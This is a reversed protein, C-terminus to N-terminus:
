DLNPYVSVNYRANYVLIDGKVDPDFLFDVPETAHLPKPSKMTAFQYFLLDTKLLFTEDSPFFKNLQLILEEYSRVCNIQVPAAGKTFTFTKSILVQDGPVQAAPLQDGPVQAAPFQDGPVQAAPLAGPSNLVLFQASADSIYNKATDTNPIVSLQEDADSVISHQDGADLPISRQEDADSFVSRQVSVDPTVSIRAEADSISCGDPMLTRLYDCQASGDIEEVESLTEDPTNTRDASAQGKELATQLWQFYGKQAQTSRYERVEFDSKLVKYAAIHCTLIKVGPLLSSCQFKLDPNGSKNVKREGNVHDRLISEVIAFLFAVFAGNVKEFFYDRQIRFLMKPKLFGEKM